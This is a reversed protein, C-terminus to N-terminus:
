PRGGGGPFGGGGHGGSTGVKTLSSTLTITTVATSGNAITYTSNLKLDKHSFILQNCSQKLTYSFIANNDSDVISIKSNSSMTSGQYVFTNQTASMQESMGSTSCAFVIGDQFYIKEADLSGNNSGPGEVIVIGGQLYLATNADIGDGSAFVRLYGNKIYITNERVLDSAANIGDDSSNSVINTNEGDITVNAAELGEYSLNIQISANNIDLNYDAHVGDDISNLTLNASDITVDGYNTHICDDSSSIEIKALHAICIEYDGTTIDGSATEIPGVKIGKVSQTLAYYSSSLNRIEDTAVRQYTTGSKVYKFDSTSLGYNTMNSQSYSVFAGHTTISYQGGSIYVYSSAQIGDGFTDATFNVNSLYAFGQEKTFATVDSDCELQLGDKGSATVNLTADFATISRATIAHNAGKAVITVDNVFLDKSVKIANKQKSEVSLTGSGSIHVNGKVHFANTDSCDNVITSKSNNLLVLYLEIANSSGFAIGTTSSINVGDLYVYVKSGKPATISIPNIDGSFQYNGAESITTSSAPIFSTPVSVESDKSAGDYSNSSGNSTIESIQDSDYNNESNISITSKKQNCGLCLLTALSVLIPFLRKKM